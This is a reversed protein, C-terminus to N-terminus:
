ARISDYGKAKNLQEDFERVSARRPPKFNANIRQITKPGSYTSAEDACWGFM